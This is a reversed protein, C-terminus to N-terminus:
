LYHRWDAGLPNPPARCQGGRGHPRGRSGRGRCGRGRYGRGRGYGRPAPDQRPPGQDQAPGHVALQERLLALGDRRSHPERMFRQEQQRVTPQWEGLDRSLRFPPMPPLDRHYYAPNRQPVRSFDQPEYDWRSDVMVNARYWTRDSVTMRNFPADDPRPVKCGECVHVGKWNPVQCTSCVWAWQRPEFGAYWWMPFRHPAGNVLQFLEHNQLCVGLVAEMYRSPFHRGYFNLVKPVGNVMVVVLLRWEGVYTNLLEWNYAGGKYRVTGIFRGAMTYIKAKANYYELRKIQHERCNVDPDEGIWLSPSMTEKTMEHMPQRGGHVYKFRRFTPNSRQQQSRVLGLRTICRTGWWTSTLYRTDVHAGKLGQSFPRFRPEYQLQLHLDRTAAQMPPTPEGSKEDVPGGLCVPLMLEFEDTRM